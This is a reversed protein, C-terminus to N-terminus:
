SSSEVFPFNIIYSEFSLVAVIINRLKCFLIPDLGYSYLQGESLCDKTPPSFLLMYADLHLNGWHSLLLSDVQLAPSAPKVGPDPLDRPPPFPLGSWYEPRPFGVSLPAQHAITWSTMFSNSVVLLSFLMHGSASPYTHTVSHEKLPEKKDQHVSSSSLVPFLSTKLWYTGAHAKCVANFLAGQSKM